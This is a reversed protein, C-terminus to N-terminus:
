RSCSDRCLLGCRETLELRSQWRERAPNGAAM